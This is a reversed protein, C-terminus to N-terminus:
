QLYLARLTRIDDPTVDLERALYGEVGGYDKDIQDLAFALYPTGDTTVLPSAKTTEASAYRLMMKAFDNTKAAAALDVDGREVQPRRFETSLQYDALIVERPVGLASLMLASAIGTRDQGASCNVVLPAEGNIAQDFYLRLQPKLSQPMTRYLAGMDPHGGSASQMSANFTKMSYPHHLYSVGAKPAWHNPYLELEERSRLDVVTDIGIKQLYAQDAETLHTMVGSRYLLGRRVTKGDVTQYGGLDRFNSGGELPVLRDYSSLVGNEGQCAQSLSIDAGAVLPLMMLGALLPAALARFNHRAPRRQLSDTM